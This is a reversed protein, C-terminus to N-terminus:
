WRLVLVSRQHRGKWTSLPSENPVPPLHNVHGDVEIQRPAARCHISAESDSMLYFSSSPATFARPLESQEFLDEAADIIKQTFM